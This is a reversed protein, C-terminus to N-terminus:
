LRCLTYTLIRLSCELQTSRLFVSRFEKIMKFCVQVIAEFCVQTLNEEQDEPKVEDRPEVKKVLVDYTENAVLPIPAAQMM